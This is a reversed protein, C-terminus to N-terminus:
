RGGPGGGMGNGKQTTLSATATTSQGNVTITYSGGDKIAASSALVSQFNKAATYCLIEKGSSDTITVKDGASGSVNALISAQKSNSGLGMAMGNSGVMVVTGGTITGNGDYDLAGNGGNTPGDVYVEGGSITLDGNSDLGDGQANVKVKGATITLSVGATAQGPASESSSGDAANIGDDNATLDLDGGNITVTKGELAEESKEVKITGGDIFATNSAHIGDDGANITIKGSQIYFNGLSTDEDNDAHIADETATLNMTADKINIADNASLANKYGKITYTGGTIRLDDNSEIANGYNGEVTLSGSGNFALDDKSYIAADYDTNKHHASDSITNKSDKALTIFTKDANEVVIAADTGTMRVGNLVLQVKDKKKVEVIIQVNESSGSLIYTGAKTITVTSGSVEAGSGSAKASSGSLSIKTAKSEDYSADQDRKTFYNSLKVTTVKSTSSSNTSTSSGNKAGCAGLAVTLLVLLILRKFQKRKSATKKM